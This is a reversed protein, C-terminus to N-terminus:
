VDEDRVKKLKERIKEADRKIVELTNNPMGLDQEADAELFALAFLVTKEENESLEIRKM